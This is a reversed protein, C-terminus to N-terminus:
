LSYKKLKKRLTARTIGLIRSAKVQNHDTYELVTKIITKEVFDKFEEVKGERIASLLEKQIMKELQVYEGSFQKKEELFQLDALDLVNDRCLIMSRVVVNELERINGDWRQGILKEMYRSTAGIINKNLKKNYRNVICEVIYPIDERRERLPPLHIHIFNLRYYLDERFKGEEVMKELDRNTAAMVRVDVKVEKSGGLRYFTGEQLVRLLKSQASLPLEGVEDLFITGGDALEFKGPKSKEAGTFAGKEYGFLESEILNEPIAACNIAVFPKDARKSLKWIGRALLEKGTGTEGTILVPIDTPAVEGALRCIEKLQPSLGIISCLYQCLLGESNGTSRFYIIEEENKEKMSIKEKLAKIEKETFPYEIYEFYNKSMVRMIFAALNTKSLNKDIVAVPFLGKKVPVPVIGFEKVNVFLIGNEITNVQSATHLPQIEPFYKKLRNLVTKGRSLLYVPM